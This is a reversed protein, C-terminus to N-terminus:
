HLLNNNEDPFIYFTGSFQVTTGNFLIITNYVLSNVNLITLFCPTIKKFFQYRMPFVKKGGQINSTSIVLM